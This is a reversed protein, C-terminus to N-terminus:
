CGNRGPDTVHHEFAVICRLMVGFVKEHCEGLTLL